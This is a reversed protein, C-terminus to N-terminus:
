NKKLDLTLASFLLLVQSGTHYCQVGFLYKVCTKVEDNRKMQKEERKLCALPNDEGTNWSCRV